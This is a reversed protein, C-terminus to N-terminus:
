NQSVFIHSLLFISMFIPQLQLLFVVYCIWGLCHSSFYPQIWLFSGWPGYCIFLNYSSLFPILLIISHWTNLPLMGLAFIWGKGNIDFPYLFILLMILPLSCYSLSLMLTEMLSFPPYQQLIPQWQNWINWQHWCSLFGEIIGYNSSYSSYLNMMFSHLIGM